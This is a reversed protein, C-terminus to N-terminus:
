VHLRNQGSRILLKARIGIAFYGRGGELFFDYVRPLNPHVLGTLLLAERRHADLATFADQANEDQQGIEKILVLRNSLRTDEAKYTAKIASSM